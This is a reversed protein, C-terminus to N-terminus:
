GMFRYIVLRELQYKVCLLRSRRIPVARLMARMAPQISSSPHLGKDGDNVLVRVAGVADVERIRGAAEGGGITEVVHQRVRRLSQRQPELVARGGRGNGSGRSRSAMRTAAAASMAPPAASIATGSTILARRGARMLTLRSRPVRAAMSAAARARPRVREAKRASAAVLSISPRCQGEDPDPEHPVAVDGSEMPRVGLFCLPALGAAPPAPRGPRRIVRGPPPPFRWRFRAPPPRVVQLKM